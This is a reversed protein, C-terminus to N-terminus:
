QESDKVASILYVDGRSRCSHSPGKDNVLVSCIIQLEIAGFRLPSRLRSAACGLFSYPQEMSTVNCSEHEAGVKDEECIGLPSEAISM